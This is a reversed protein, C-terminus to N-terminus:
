PNSIPQATEDRQIETMLELRERAV